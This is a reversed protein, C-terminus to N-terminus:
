LRDLNGVFGCVRGCALRFEPCDHNSLNPYRCKKFLEDEDIEYTYKTTNQDYKFLILLGCTECESALNSM